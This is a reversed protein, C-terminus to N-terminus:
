RARPLSLAWEGMADAGPEPVRTRVVSPKRGPHVCLSGSQNRREAPPPRVPLENRASCRRSVVVDDLLDGSASGAGPVQRRNRHSPQSPCGDAGRDTRQIQANYPAVILIDRSTLPWTQSEVDTWTVGEQTLDSVIREIASVEAPCHSQRGEHEVAVHFLGSGVFRTPGGLVQRFNPQRPRLRNEYYLESTFTCIDPHLRWTTDLFLGREPTITDRGDLLHVLAAVGTGDPHSAQQPQELQQPDGLLIINHASRSVALVDAIAMQGAEDVFLYDLKEVADGRSWLWATGGVVYGEDLAGLAKDNDRTELIDGDEEILHKSGVKHALSVSSGAENAAELTKDLLHRIVKHSVATVGVRKGRGALDLIMRAGIHTKGTGPPGQIPLLDGDLENALRVACELLDEGPRRLVGVGAGQRHPPRKCLLDRAARFPGSGSLGSQGISRAVALLSKPKPKSGIREDVFVSSPHTRATAQRKKIDITCSAADIRVVTGLDQDLSGVEYLEDGEDVAAEQPEFRYRHVPCRKTGGDQAGVFKLGAIAKREEKLEEYELEHRRFFEWHACNMERRYYDLMDALLSRAMQDETWSARDESLDATLSDYVEQTKADREVVGESPDGSELEPRVISKGRDLWERRRDELWDRLAAAAECDERNYGEVTNRDEDISSIDGLDLAADVRRRARSAERLDVTRKFGAFLELDKLSYREVSARVGQRAVAHLDILRGARLLRDVEDQRTAHRSTLRKLAANEYPAFHYVHMGAHRRWQAMVFDVFREFATREEARTHAWLHQYELGGSPVSVSWGFLYELGGSEYFRAAEIDFFIDGASPEPLKALGRQPELALLEFRREGARRAEVQVRAQNLLKELTSRSGRGPRQIRDTPTDALATTTPISQRRLEEAHLTSMGAVLCLHDDARRQSDCESWWRCIECQTVPTPYTAPATAAQLEAVSRVLRSKVLRYYAGFDDCRYTDRQLTAGPKVVHMRVPPCNQLRRLIESYLCLQLITGARTNQALKTDVVEYSWRGFASPKTAAREVHPVKVLFDAIGRWDGDALPAQYLVDVGEHMLELTRDVDAERGIEVVQLDDVELQDRYAAEHQEGRKRLIELVPDRFVPPERDGQAAELDLRTLHRCGLHQALDTASLLLRNGQRNVASWLPQDHTIEIAELCCRM